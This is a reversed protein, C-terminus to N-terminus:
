PPIRRAHLQWYALRELSDQKEALKRPIGNRLKRSM